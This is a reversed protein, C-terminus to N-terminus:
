IIVRFVVAKGNSRNTQLKKNPSTFGLSIELFDLGIWSFIPLFCQNTEPVVGGVRWCVPFLPFVAHWNTWQQPLHQAELWTARWPIKQLDPRPTNSATPDGPFGSFSSLKGHQFLYMNIKFWNGNTLLYHHMREMGHLRSKPHSVSTSKNPYAYTYLYIWLHRRIFSNWVHLLCTM